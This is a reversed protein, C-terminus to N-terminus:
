IRQVRELIAKTADTYTVEVTAILNTLLYYNYNETSSTPYTVQIDDYSLGSLLGNELTVAVKPSTADGRFKNAENDKVTGFM